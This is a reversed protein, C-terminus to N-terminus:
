KCIGCSHKRNQEIRETRSQMMFSKTNIIVQQNTYIEMPTAGNLSGHPRVLCYDNVALRICEIVQILTNPKYTRLYVKIIKNIAEIPANSFSIDKQAIIKTIDPQPTNKLLEHITTNHNEKGGDAMLMTCLHEPHYQHITNIAADLASKVNEANKKLSVSWGLIAKSFNDSVFVIAAQSDNEINWFTTDVHLFQNPATTALGTHVEKDPKVKKKYGIQPLYKYWTSLSIGLIHNRIAYWAISSVPWCIFREDNLLSKMISVEKFSLQLPHKRMCAAWVSDHCLYKLKNLRYQFAQASLGALKLATRKPLATCLRQVENIVIEKHQKHKSLFPNVIHAINIWTKTIVNLTKKLGDREHILEIYQFAENLKPRIEHGIYSTSPDNNRWTAITSYPISRRLSESLLHEKNHYYLYVISTDYQSRKRLPSM